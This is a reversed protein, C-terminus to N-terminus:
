ENYAIRKQKKKWKSRKHGKSRDRFPDSKGIKKMEAPNGQLLEVAYELKYQERLKHKKLREQRRLNKEKNALKKNIRM